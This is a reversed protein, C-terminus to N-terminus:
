LSNPSQGTHSWCQHGSPAGCLSFEGTLRQPSVGAQLVLWQRIADTLVCL